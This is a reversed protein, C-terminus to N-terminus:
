MSYCRHCHHYWNSNLRWETFPRCSDRNTPRYPLWMYFGLYYKHSLAVPESYVVLYNYKWICIHNQIMNDHWISEFIEHIQNIPRIWDNVHFQRCSHIVCNTKAKDAQVYHGNHALHAWTHWTSSDPGIFPSIIKLPSITSQVHHIWIDSTIFTYTIHHLPTIHM